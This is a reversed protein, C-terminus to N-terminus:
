KMIVEMLWYPLFSPMLNNVIEWSIFIYNGLPAKRWKIKLYNSIIKWHVRRWIVFVTWILTYLFVFHDFSDMLNLTLFESSYSLLIKWQVFDGWLGKRMLIFHSVSPKVTLLQSLNVALVNVTCAEKKKGNTKRIPSSKM